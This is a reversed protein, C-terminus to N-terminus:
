DVLWDEALDLLQKASTTPNYVFGIMKLHRTHPKSLIRLHIHNSNLQMQITRTKKSAILDKLASELALGTKAPLRIPATITILLTKGAPLNKEAALQLDDLLGIAVRDFRLGLKKLSL